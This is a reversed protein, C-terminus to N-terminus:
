IYCIEQSNESSPVSLARCNKSSLRVWERKMEMVDLFDLTLSAEEKNTQATKISHGRPGKNQSAVRQLLLMLSIIYKGM